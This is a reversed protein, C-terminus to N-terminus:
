TIANSMCKPLNSITEHLAIVKMDLKKITPLSNPVTYFTCAISVQIVTDGYKTKTEHQYPVCSFAWMTKNTQDHNCSYTNEM